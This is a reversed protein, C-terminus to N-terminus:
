IIFYVNRLIFFVITIALNFISLPLLLKYNLNILKNVSSVGSITRELLVVIVFIVYFKIAIMIDGSILFLKQWGGLYIINIF